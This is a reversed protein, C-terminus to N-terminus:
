PLNRAWRYLLAANGDLRTAYSHNGNGGGLDSGATTVGVVTGSGTAPDLAAFHPGGSAGRGMDCRPGWL